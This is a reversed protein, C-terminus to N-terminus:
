FCNSAHFWAKILKVYVNRSRPGDFEM